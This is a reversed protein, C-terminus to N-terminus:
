HQRSEQEQHTRPPGADQAAQCNRSLQEGTSSESIGGGDDTGDLSALLTITPWEARASHSPLQQAVGSGIWEECGEDGVRFVGGAYCARVEPVSVGLLLDGVV